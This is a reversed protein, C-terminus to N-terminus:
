PRRGAHIKQHPVPIALINARHDASAFQIKGKETSVTACHIGYRGYDSTLRTSFM